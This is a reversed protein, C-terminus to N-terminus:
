RAFFLKTVTKTVITLGNFGVPFKQQRFSVGLFIESTKSGNTM